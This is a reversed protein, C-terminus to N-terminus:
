GEHNLAHTLLRLAGGAIVSPNTKISERKTSEVNMRSIAFLKVSILGVMM